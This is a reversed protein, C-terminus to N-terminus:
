ARIAPPSLSPDLYTSWTERLIDISPPPRSRTGIAWLGQGINSPDVDDDVVIVNKGFYAGTTCEAALAMGQAAHGAYMQKSSVVTIGWGAAEPISWVGKVGPVGLKQLDAWIGASRLAAWFLGCENAATDAMLACTLTPNDRYRVREVRM